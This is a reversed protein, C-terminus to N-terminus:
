LTHSKGNGGLKQELYFLLTHGKEYPISSFVDDPDVKDLQVVLKTYPHTVGFREVQVYM